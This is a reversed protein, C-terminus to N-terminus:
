KKSGTSLPWCIVKIKKSLILDGTCSYSGAFGSLDAFGRIYSNVIWQGTKSVLSLYLTNEPLVGDESSATIEMPRSIVADVMDLGLSTKAALDAESLTFPVSFGDLLDAIDFSSFYDYIKKAM